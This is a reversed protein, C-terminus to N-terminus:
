KNKNKPKPINLKERLTGQKYKKKYIGLHQLRPIINLIFEELFEPLVPPM